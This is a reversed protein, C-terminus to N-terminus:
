GPCHARAGSSSGATRWGHAPRPGGARGPRLMLLGAGTTRRIRHGWHHGLSIGREIDSLRLMVEATRAAADGIGVPEAGPGIPGTTDSRGDRAPRSRSSARARPANFPPEPPTQIVPPGPTPFVRSAWSIVASTVLTSHIVGADVMRNPVYSFAMRADLDVLCGSGGAGGWFGARQNPSLPFAETPLAFGLGWRAPFRPILDLGDTRTRFVSDCTAGSLLRVGRAEGGNALVSQMAAISETNGQGGFAPLEAERWEPTWAVKHGTEFIPPNNLARAMPHDMDIGGAMRPPPIVPSIRHHEAREIGFHFDAGLPGAIEDALFRGISVGTVRRVVEGILHGQTYGHYGGASGPTWRPTQRALLSTPKEWDDVDEFSVKEDWAQLGASHPLLHEVLVDETGAQAFGPWCRAVPATLDLAGRDALVLACLVSATTSSSFVHTLTHREWPRTRGADFSAGVDTGNELNEQFVKKVAAFREDCAGHIDTM